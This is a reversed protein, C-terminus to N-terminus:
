EFTKPVTVYPGSVTKANLLVKALPFSEGTEDPRTNEGRENRPRPTQPAQRDLAALEGAFDVIGMFDKDMAQEDSLSLSLMSLLATNQVTERTVREEHERKMDEAVNVGLKLEELQKPDVFDPAGTMPCSADKTKPFAIVERLSSAGTLLMCLRDLGFAFGAHPPTGYHFAGLMFGFRERAQERSFGLASFVRSQVDARHIRVSGSGLEVGNLVVDYAQSRVLPKTADDQMLDLDEEFPMTFPHHMAAYRNEDKKYEFMPFETVLAFQFVNRDILGMLEGCRVRLGSLVRRTVDIQDACFLLFDGKAAGTKEELVRWCEDGFYKPLISNIEGDPKYLIWAMGKAGLKQAYATLQEITSRTFAEGGGKVNICRVVGGHKLAGTFVGFTTQAAVDSVDVIPLGFRLDPKDNGYSDMAEQWTLRKFPADLPRKMMSEFLRTFLDALFALMDEQTVFSREMDVQTFEPQRDARLDEDRFCRAIQYYKDIGAVMLLQKYIQPSQPLAYFTGPHVRSPVLYDRAGEPTSKCLIPTEVQLFGQEDLIREAERQLAARFRLTEYMKPRRLDLYRYQLRLEERVPEDDTLSFPLAEAASLVEMHEAALEVEGTPIAANYTSEDRLRIEGTVRVVSQNKLREAAAFSDADVISINFVTQLTGERDRVDVFIVGGMDRRTLVWGCVAAKRGIHGRRLSGCYDTRYMNTEEKGFDTYLFGEAGFRREPRFAISEDEATGGANAAKV